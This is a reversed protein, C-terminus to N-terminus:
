QGDRAAARASRMADLAKRTHRAGQEGRTRAEVVTEAKLALLAWSLAREVEGALATTTDRDPFYDAVARDIADYRTRPARWAAASGIVGEEVATRIPSAEPAADYARLALGPEDTVREADAPLVGGAPAHAAGHRGRPGVIADVATQAYRLAAEPKRAGEVGRLAGYAIALREVLLDDPGRTDDSASPSTATQDSCAVVFIGSALLLLRRRGLIAAISIPTM